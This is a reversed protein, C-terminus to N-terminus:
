SRAASIAYIDSNTLIGDAYDAMATAWEQDDIAGNGDADYHKVVESLGAQPDSASEAEDAVSVTRVQQVAANGAGDTVDYYLHYTGAQATDVSGTVTVRNTLDGDYNDTATYGPEAYASGVAITMQSSGTLTIVPATQDDVSVKRIQQVAANGAGDTVDYYFTYTGVRGTYMAGTVPVGGTPDNCGAISPIPLCYSVAKTVTVSGTLDGDERDTATYGPETYTSGVTIIMQSAGKLTITPATQDTVGVTRIQQVAANGSSDTVDYYLHYTGTRATDVSGAVTVDGTLDGDERDTATYGPETYTSGVTITMQSSGTLTITPATQDAVSVTRVQQVAANGSSDTVDYYLRYTGTRATDVSGTVTVNGTLDGDYNDTATYGPEAYASGVTITMQSSGTLTITPATQDAVSVTRVQQVAANGSSDTVDYYLRYTGTRATDVSGTVTVNGTLDGDYNDTATYGPEAYASGVTITMQSSGTLTITPATQDAVSVERVRQVAANGSSDTVAYYLRYTGTRATDVSGAVTVDGTLDGDERDTATYGPETYAANVPLTMGTSGALVIVPAEDTTQQQTQQQQNENSPPEEPQVNITITNAQSSYATGDSVKFQFTAYPSGSADPEPEFVLGAIQAARIEQNLTVQTGNLKLSGASQLSAIQIHALSDGTDPDSFGFDSAAFTYTTDESIEVTKDAGAPLRNDIAADLSPAVRITFTGNFHPYQEIIWSYQGPKNLAYDVRLNEIHKAPNVVDGDYRLVFEPKTSKVPNDPYNPDFLTTGYMYETYIFYFSNDTGNHLIINQTKDLACVEATSGPHIFSRDPHRYASHDWHDVTRWVNCATDSGIKVFVRKSGVDSAKIGTKALWLDFLTTPNVNITITNAQSGYTEGDSVKFQFTAYPSGSADPEPEFVLGAIQAARIEQNLTVQTGFLKLSGASQLATIRIKSLSDGADPDSFGFDSAAFAYTTNARMTIAKDAGAPPTNVPVPEPTAPEQNIWLSLSVTDTDSWGIGTDYWRPSKTASADFQLPTSGVILTANQAGPIANNLRLYMLEQTTLVVRDIRYTEDDYVFTDPYLNYSCATLSSTSWCGKAATGYPVLTASWTADGSDALAPLTWCALAALAAALLLVWFLRPLVYTNHGANLGPPFPYGLNTAKLLDTSLTAFSTFRGM